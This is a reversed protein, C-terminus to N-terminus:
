YGRTTVLIRYQKFLLFFFSVKLQIAFLGPTKSRRSQFGTLKHFDVLIEDRCRSPAHALRTIRSIMANENWHGEVEGKIRTETLM